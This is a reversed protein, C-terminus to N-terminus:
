ETKQRKDDHGDEPYLFAGVGWITGFPDQVQGYRMGWFTDAIPFVVKGGEALMREYAKDADAVTVFVTGPSEVSEKVANVDALFVAGGHMEIMAHMLIEKAEDIHYQFTVKCEIAKEIWAVHDNGKSTVIEPVLSPSEQKCHPYEKRHKVWEMTNKLGSEDRGKPLIDLLRYVVNLDELGRGYTGYTLYIDDGDKQFVSIGPYQSMPPKTAKYNYFQEEKASDKMVNFDINFTSGNSSVIRTTPPLNKLTYDLLKPLPAHGVFVIDADRAMLHEEVLSFGDAWLACSNCPADWSEDYMFHYVILQSMSGFLEALTKRGGTTDFIYSPAKEVKVRPLERRMAAIEDRLRTLEKEKELLATRAAFYEPTSTNM